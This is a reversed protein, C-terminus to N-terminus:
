RLVYQPSCCTFPVLFWLITYKLFKFKSFRQLIFYIALLKSNYQNISSFLPLYHTSFSRRPSSRYLSTKQRKWCCWCVVWVDFICFEFVGGTNRLLPPEHQSGLAGFALSTATTTTMSRPETSGVCTPLTSSFARPGTEEKFTRFYIRILHHRYTGNNDLMPVLETRLYM